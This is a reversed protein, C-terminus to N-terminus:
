SIERTLRDKRVHNGHGVIQKRRRVTVELGPSAALDALESTIIGGFSDSEHKRDHGNSALNMCFEWTWQPQHSIVSIYVILYKVEAFSWSSMPGQILTELPAPSAIETMYPISNAKGNGISRGHLHVQQHMAGSVWNTGNRNSRPQHSWADVCVFLNDDPVSIDECASDYHLRIPDIAM